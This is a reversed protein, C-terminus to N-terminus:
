AGYKAEAIAGSGTRPCASHPKAVAAAPKVTASSEGTSPEMASADPRRLGHIAANVTSTTTPEDSSHSPLGPSADTIGITSM